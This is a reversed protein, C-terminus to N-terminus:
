SKMRDLFLFKDVLDDYKAAIGLLSAIVYGFHVGNVSFFHLHHQQNLFSRERM